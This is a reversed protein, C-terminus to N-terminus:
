GYLKYLSVILVDDYYAMRAFHTDLSRRQLASCCKAYVATAGNVDQDIMGRNVM